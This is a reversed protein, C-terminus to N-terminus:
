VHTTIGNILEQADDLEGYHCLHTKAIFFCASRLYGKYLDFLHHIMDEDGKYLCHAIQCGIITLQILFIVLCKTYDTEAFYYLITSICASFSISVILRHAFPLSYYGPLYPAFVKMFGEAKSLADEYTNETMEMVGCIGFRSCCKKTKQPLFRIWFCIGLINDLAYIALCIYTFVYWVVEEASFVFMKLLLGVSFFIWFM